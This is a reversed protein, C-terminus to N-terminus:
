RPATRPRIRERVHLAIAAATEPRLEAFTLRRGNHLDVRLTATRKRPWALRHDVAAVASYGVYRVRHSVADDLLWLLRRDSVVLLTHPSAWTSASVVMDVAEGVALVRLLEPGLRERVEEGLWAGRPPAGARAVFPGSPPAQVDRLRDYAANIEAMRRGGREGARDPHFRKALRRYAAAVEDPTADPGLGLVAYPDM